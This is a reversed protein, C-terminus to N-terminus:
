SSDEFVGRRVSAAVMADISLRDDAPDYDGTRAPAFVYRQAAQPFRRALRALARALRRAYPLPDDLVRRLAEFRRALRFAADAEGFARATRQQPTPAPNEEWLTRIRPADAAAVLHPDRPLAFSFRAAWTEPQSADIKRPAAARRSEQPRQAYPTWHQALGLCPLQVVEMRPGCAKAAATEARRFECAEAFLLKRAVHELPCLWALIDRRLTKTLLKIAAIAVPAGLAAAARALMARARTWLPSEALRPPAAIANM